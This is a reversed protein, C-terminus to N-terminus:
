LTQKFWESDLNYKAKLLSRSMFELQQHQMETYFLDEIKPEAMEIEFRCHLLEHILTQEDCIKIEFGESKQKSIRILAEKHTLTKINHGHVENDKKSNIEDVLEFRIIWDNLYLIDQWMKGYKKLQENDKFTMKPEKNM